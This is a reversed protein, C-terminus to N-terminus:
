EVPLTGLNTVIYDQEWTKMLDGNANYIKYLTGTRVGNEERAETVINAARDAFPAVMNYALLRRKLM